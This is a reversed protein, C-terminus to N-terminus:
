ILMKKSTIWDSSKWIMAKTRVKYSVGQKNRDSKVSTNGEWGHVWNSNRAPQTAFFGVHNIRRQTKSWFFYCDGKEAREIGAFNLNRKYFTRNKPAFHAALASKVTPVGAHQFGSYVFAACWPANKFGFPALFKRIEPSDNNTIERVHQYQKCFDIVAERKLTNSDVRNTVTSIPLTARVFPEVKDVATKSKEVLIPATIEDYIYSVDFSVPSDITTPSAVCSIVSVISFLALLFLSVSKKM